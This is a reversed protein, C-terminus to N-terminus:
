PDSAVLAVPTGYRAGNQGKGEGGPSSRVFYEPLGHSVCGGGRSVAVGGEVNVTCTSRQGLLYEVRGISRPRQM